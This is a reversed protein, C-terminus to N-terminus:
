KRNVTHSLIKWTQRNRTPTHKARCRTCGRTTGSKVRCTNQFKVRLTKYYPRYYFDNLKLIIGFKNKGTSWGWCSGTMVSALDCTSCVNHWMVMSLLRSNGGRTRPKTLGYWTILWTGVWDSTSLLKDRITMFKNCLRLIDAEFCNVTLKVAFIFWSLETFHIFKLSVQTYLVHFWTRYLMLFRDLVHIYLKRNLNLVKTCKCQHTKSCNICLSSLSLCHWKVIM